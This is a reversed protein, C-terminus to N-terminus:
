DKVGEYTKTVTRSSSLHCEVNGIAGGNGRASLVLSYDLDNLVRAVEMEARDLLGRCHFEQFEPSTAAEVVYQAVGEADGQGEVEQSSATSGLVSLLLAGVLRM